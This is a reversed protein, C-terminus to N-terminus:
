RRGLSKVEMEDLMDKELHDCFALLESIRERQRGITGEVGGCYERVMSELQAVGEIVPEGNTLMKGNWWEGELKLRAGSERVTRGIARCAAGQRSAFTDGGDNASNDSAPRSMRSAAMPPKQPAGNYGPTLRERLLRRTEASKKLLNSAQERPHPSLGNRRPPTRHLLSRGSAIMDAKSRADGDPTGNSAFPSSFVGRNIGAVGDDAAIPSAVNKVPATADDDDEEGANKSSPPSSCVPQPPTLTTAVVANKAALAADVAAAMAESSVEEEFGGDDSVVPSPPCDDKFRVSRRRENGPGEDANAADEKGAATGATEEEKEAVDELLRELSQREHMERQERLERELAGVRGRWLDIEELSRGLWAECEDRSAQAEKALELALAADEEAAKSRLEEAELRQRESALQTASRENASEYQSHLGTLEANLHSNQANLYGVQTKAEELQVTATRLQTRVRELELSLALVDEAHSAELRRPPLTSPVSPGPSPQPATGTQEEAADTAVALPKPQAQTGQQQQIQKELSPDSYQPQQENTEDHQRQQEQRQQQALAGEAEVVGCQVPNVDPSVVEPPDWRSEGTTPNHYYYVGRQDVAQFWGEPLFYGGEGGWENAGKGPEGEDGKDDKDSGGTANAGGSAAAAGEPQNEVADEFEELSTANSEETTAAAIGVAVNTDGSPAGLVEAVDGSPAIPVEANRLPTSEFFLKQVVESGGKGANSDGNEKPSTTAEIGPSPRRAASGAHAEADAGGGAYAAPSTGGGWFVGVGGRTSRPTKRPSPELPRERRQRAEAAARVALRRERKRELLEEHSPTGGAGGKTKKRGSGSLRSEGGGYRRAVEGAAKANRRARAADRSASAAAATMGSLAADLNRILDAAARSKSPSSSLRAAPSSASAGGGRPPSSLVAAAM